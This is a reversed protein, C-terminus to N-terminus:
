ILKVRNSDVWQQGDGSVPEVLFDTRGYVQRINIIKVNFYLPGCTLIAQKNILQSIKKSDM